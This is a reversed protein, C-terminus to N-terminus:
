WNIPGAKRYNRALLRLDLLNIVADANLDAEAPLNANYNMGITLADFQDIVNNGDLDGALLNIIPLEVTQGANLNVQGQASLFGSATIKVLYVGPLLELEFAGNEATTLSTILSNDTTYFAVTAPKSVQIQGSVTGTTPPPVTATPRLGPTSTPPFPPTITPELTLTPTPTFDAIFLDANLFPLSALTKDDSSVRAQCQLNVAGAHLAKARFTFAAGSKSARNEGSAAIAIIFAGKQPGNLALAPDDGFLNTVSMESIEIAGEAFSCSFEVGSYGQGPINNLGLTVLATETPAIRAPTIEAYGYPEAPPPITPQPSPTSTSLPTKTPQPTATVAPINDKTLRVVESGNPLIEVYGYISGIKKYAFWNGSKSRYYALTGDKWVPPIDNFLDNETFLKARAQSWAARDNSVDWDGVLSVQPLTGLLASINDDIAETNDEKAWRYSGTLAVKLPHNLRTKAYQNQRLFTETGEYTFFIHPLLWPASYESMIALNPNSQRALAIVKMEGLVFSDGNQVQKGALFWDGADMGLTDMYAGVAGYKNLYNNLNRPLYNRFQESAPHLLHLESDYTGRVDAWYTQWNAPTGAYDPTFQYGPPLWNMEGLMNLRRAAAQENFILTYPHYLIMPWGYQRVYQMELATPRNSNRVLTPDGFLVIRDGNWEYYLTEQPPTISALEAFKQPKESYDNNAAEFVTHINRVWPAAHQWLPKAGTRAEFTAKWHRAAEYWAPYTGIRWVPSSIQQKNAAAMDQGAYLVLHDYAPRHLLEINDPAYRTSESWVGAVSQTGKIVSMTPSYLGFGPFSVQDDKAADSRFYEAGSGLIVSQTVSNMIPLDVRFPQFGATGEAGTIQVLIEGSSDITIDYVLTSGPAPSGNYYLTSYTLRGANPQLLSFTVASSETPWRLYYNGSADKSSFGIFGQTVSPRNQTSSGNVLIEGSVKDKLYNIAGNEFRIELRNTSISLVRNAFNFSAPSQEQPAALVPQFGGWALSLIALATIFRYVKTFMM